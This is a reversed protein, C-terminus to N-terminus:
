ESARIKALQTLVGSWIIEDAEDDCELANNLRDSAVSEAEIGHTAVLM